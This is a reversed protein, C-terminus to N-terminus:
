ETPKPEHRVLVRHASIKISEAGQMSIRQVLLASSLMQAKSLITNVTQQRAELKRHKSFGARDDSRVSILM